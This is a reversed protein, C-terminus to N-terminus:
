ACPEPADGSTLASNWSFPAQFIRQGLDGAFFLGNPRDGAMAAFFRLQAVPLDQAEDVIAFDYPARVDDSDFAEALASFVNSLTSLDREELGERIREFMPWLTARHSTALRTRRGVHPTATPRSTGCRGPM